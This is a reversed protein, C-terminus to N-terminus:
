TSLPLFLLPAAIAHQLSVTVREFPNLIMLLLAQGILAHRADVPPANYTEECSRRRQPPRCLLIFVFFIHPHIYPYLVDTHLVSNKTPPPPFSYSCVRPCSVSSSFICFAPSLPPSFFIRSAGWPDALFSPLSLSFNIM